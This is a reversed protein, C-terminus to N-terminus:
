CKEKNEKWMEKTELKKLAEKNM